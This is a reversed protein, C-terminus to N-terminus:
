SPTSEQHISCESKLYKTKFMTYCKVGLENDLLMLAILLLQQGDTVCSIDLQWEEEKQNKIVIAYRSATPLPAAARCAAPQYPCINGRSQLLIQLAHHTKLTDRLILACFCAVNNIMLPREGPPSHIQIMGKEYVLSETIDLLAGYKKGLM